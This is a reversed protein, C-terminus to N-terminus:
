PGKPSLTWFAESFARDNRLSWRYSGVLGFCCVLPCSPWNQGSLFSKFDKPSQIFFQQSSFWKGNFSGLLEGLRQFPQSVSDNFFATDKQVAFIKM